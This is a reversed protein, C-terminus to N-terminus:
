VPKVEPPADPEEHWPRDVFITKVESRHFRKEMGTEKFYVIIWDDGERLWYRIIELDFPIRDRNSGTVLEPSDVAMMSSEPGYIQDVRSEVLEIIRGDVELYTVAHQSAFAPSILLAFVLALLGFAPM